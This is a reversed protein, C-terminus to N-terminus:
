VATKHCVNNLCENIDECKGNVLSYGRNCFCIAEHEQVECNGKGCNTTECPGSFLYLCFM